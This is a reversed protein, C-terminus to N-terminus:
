TTLSDLLQDLQGEESNTQVYIYMVYEFKGKDLFDDVRSVISSLCNNSSLDLVSILIPM